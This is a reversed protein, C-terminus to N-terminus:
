KYTNKKGELLTTNATLETVLGVQQGVKLNYSNLHTFTLDPTM